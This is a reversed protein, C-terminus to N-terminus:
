QDKLFKMYKTVAENARRQYEEPSAIVPLPPLGRNRQEELRLSAHARALERKLLTSRTKGPSRSWTFTACAGPTTRRASDRVPRDELAGAAEALRRVRGDGQARKVAARGSWRNARELKKRSIM